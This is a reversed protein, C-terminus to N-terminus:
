TPLTDSDRVQGEPVRGGNEVDRQKSSESSVGQTHHDTDALVPTQSLDSKAVEQVPKNKERQLRKEEQIDEQQVESSQGEKQKQLGPIDVNSGSGNTSGANDLADFFLDDDKGTVLARKSEGSGENPRVATEQTPPKQLDSNPPLTSVVADCGGSSQQDPHPSSSSSTTLIATPSRGQLPPEGSAETTHVPQESTDLSEHPKGVPRTAELNKCPCCVDGLPKSCHECHRIPSKSNRDARCKPCSYFDSAPLEFGCEKCVSRDATLSGGSSESM